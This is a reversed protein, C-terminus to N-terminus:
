EQYNAPWYSWWKNYKFGYIYNTITNLQILSSSNSYYIGTGLLSGQIKNRTIMSNTSSILVIGNTNNYINNGYNTIGKANKIYIGYKQNPGYISNSQIDNNIAKNSVILIGYIANSYIQNAKILNNTVSGM